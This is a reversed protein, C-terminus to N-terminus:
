CQAHRNGLEERRFIKDGDSRFQFLQEIAPNRQCWFLLFSRERHHSCEMTVGLCSLGLAEETIEYAKM